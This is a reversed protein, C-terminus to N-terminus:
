HKLWIKTELDIEVIFKCLNKFNLEMPTDLSKYEMM